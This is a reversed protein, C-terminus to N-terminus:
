YHGVLVSFIVASLRTSNGYIPLGLGKVAIKAIQM